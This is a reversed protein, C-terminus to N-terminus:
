FNRSFKSSVKLLNGGKFFTESIRESIGGSAPQTALNKKKVSEELLKKVSERLFEELSEGLFEELSEKLCEELFKKM